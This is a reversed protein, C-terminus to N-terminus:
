RPTHEKRHPARPPEATARLYEAIMREIVEQDAPQLDAISLAVRAVSISMADTLLRRVCEFLTPPMEGLLRQVCSRVDSEARMYAHAVLLHEPKLTEAPSALLAAISTGLFQCVRAVNAPRVNRGGGKEISQLTGLSVGSNARDAQTAVDTQDLGREVRLAKLRRGIIVREAPTLRRPRGTGFEDRAGLLISPDPPVPAGPSGARAVTSTPTM